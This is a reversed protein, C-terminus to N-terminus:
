PPEAVSWAVPTALSPLPLMKRTPEVMESEFNGVCFGVCAVWTAPASPSPKMPIMRGVSAWIVPPGLPVVCLRSAFNVNLAPGSDPKSWEASSTPAFNSHM